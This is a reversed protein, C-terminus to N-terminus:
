PCRGCVCVGYNNSLQNFLHVSTSQKIVRTDKVCMVQNCLILLCFQALSPEDLVSFRLENLMIMGVGWFVTNKFAQFLKLVQLLIGGSSMEQWRSAKRDIRPVELDILSVAEEDTIGDDLYFEVLPLVELCVNHMNSM